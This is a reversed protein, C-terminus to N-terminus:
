ENEDEKILEEEEAMNMLGKELSVKDVLEGLSSLLSQDNIFIEMLADKGKIKDPLLECSYTPGSRTIIDLGMAATITSIVSDFGRGHYFKLILEQGENKNIRTKDLKISCAWGPHLKRLTGDLGKVNIKEPWDAKGTRRFKLRLHAWHKVANGGRVEELAVNATPATYGKHETLNTLKKGPVLGAICKQISCIMDEDM